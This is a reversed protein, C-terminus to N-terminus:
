AAIEKRKIFAYLPSSVAVLGDELPKVLLDKSTLCDIWLRIVSDVEDCVWATVFRVSGAGKVISDMLLLPEMSREYLLNMFPSNRSPNNLDALVPMREQVIVLQELEFPLSIRDLNTLEQLVDPISMRSWEPSLILNEGTLKKLMQRLQYDNTKLVTSSANM